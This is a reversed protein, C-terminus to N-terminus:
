KNNNHRNIYDVASQMTEPNDNFFGLGINCYKCLVGRVTGTQHCHDIAKMLPNTTDAGCIACTNVARLERARDLSVGYRTSVTKTRIQEQNEVQYKKKCAKCWSTLKSSTNQDVHYQTIPKNQKCKGCEKKGDIIRQKFQGKLTEYGKHCKRCQGRYKQNDSRWEFYEKTKEKKCTSCVM